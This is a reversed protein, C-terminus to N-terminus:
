DGLQPRYKGTMIDEDMKFPNKLVTDILDILDIGGVKSVLKCSSSKMNMDKIKAQLQRNTIEGAAVIPPCNNCSCRVALDAFSPHFVPTTNQSM